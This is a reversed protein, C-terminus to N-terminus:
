TYNEREQRYKWDHQKEEKAEPLCEVEQSGKNTNQKHSLTKSVKAWASM